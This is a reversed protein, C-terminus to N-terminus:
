RQVYPKQGSKMESRLDSIRQNTDSIRQNLAQQGAKIESRLAQQGAELKALKEVVERDTIDPAPELALLAGPIILQLLVFVYLIKLKLKMFFLIRRLSPNRAQNLISFFSCIFGANNVQGRKRKDGKEKKHPTHPPFLLFLFPFFSPDFYLFLVYSLQWNKM